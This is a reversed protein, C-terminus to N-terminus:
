SQRERIGERGGGKGGGGNRDDTYYVCRVYVFKKHFILLINTISYKKVGLYKM